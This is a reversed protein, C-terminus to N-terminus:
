EFIYNVQIGQRKKGRKLVFVTVRARRFVWIGIRRRGITEWRRQRGVPSGIGIALPIVDHAINDPGVVIYRSEFVTVPDVFVKRIWYHHVPVHQAQIKGGGGDRM